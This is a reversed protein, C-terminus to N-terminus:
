KKSAKETDRNYKKIAGLCDKKQIAELANIDEGILLKVNDETFNVMDGDTPQLAIISEPFFYPAGIEESLFSYANIPGDIVKFLWCSGAAYGTFYVPQPLDFNKHVVSNDVIQLNRAISLTQSPYIKKFKNTDSRKLSKDVFLLYNQHLITDIYIKSDVEKKSGDKMTVIYTHPLFVSSSNDYKIGSMGRMTVLQQNIVVHENIAARPQAFSNNSFFFLSFVAFLTIHLNKPKM